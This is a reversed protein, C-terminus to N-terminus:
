LDKIMKIHLLKTKKSLFSDGKSCFGMKEYFEKAQIKANLTVRKYGKNKSFVILHKLIEKGIGMKQFKEKVVLQSITAFDKNEFTIRGYGLVEQNQVCVLHIASEELADYVKDWGCNYPKFFINFRIEVVQKYMPNDTNIYIYEMKNGKRWDFAV